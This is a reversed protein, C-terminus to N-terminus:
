AASAPTYNKGKADWSGTALVAIHAWTREWTPPPFALGVEAFSTVTRLRADDLQIRRLRILTKFAASGRRGEPLRRRWTSASPKWHAASRRFRHLHPNSRRCWGSTDIERSGIKRSRTFFPGSFGIETTASLAVARPGAGGM